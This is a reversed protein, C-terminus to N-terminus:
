PEGCVICGIRIAIDRTLTEVEGVSTDAILIPDRVDVGCGKPFGDSQTERCDLSSAQADSPVTFIMTHKIGLWMM